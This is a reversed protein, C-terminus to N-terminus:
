LSAIWEILLRVGSATGGKPNEGSDSDSRGTGAIDLHAWRRSGVFKELFLAATISGGGFHQRDIHAYDAIDSHLAEAYDDVLPMQWANDGIRKGAEHIDHALNADRSYMAAYQRGLGIRAAGTLTAVDILYDPKLELDAYALGDALVLRGEADTDLVEVTTGGYQTIVDSPRQATSSILNAACMMLATVRVKPAIEAMAVTTAMVIAAGSMDTKMPAMEEWGRKLSYGGTDFTIGKGVLVVHPWKASGRPAYSVEIMRPGPTPQSGGVARLGGFNKLAAGSHVKVTLDSSAVKKVARSTQTAMWAPNKEDSTAHILDRALWVADIQARSYDIENEINAAKPSFIFTCPKAKPASKASWIYQSLALANIHLVAYTKDSLIANLVTVSKGKVKRGLAVGAKRYDNGSEEGVGVIYLRKISNHDIPVEILEGAKASFEPWQNLIVAFDVGCEEAIAATVANSSITPKGEFLKAAVALSDVKSGAGRKSGFSSGLPLPESASLLTLHPPTTTNV